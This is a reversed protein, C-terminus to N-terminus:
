LRIGGIIQRPRRQHAVPTACGHCKVAHEVCGAPREGEASRVLVDHPVITEHEFREQQHKFDVIFPLISM